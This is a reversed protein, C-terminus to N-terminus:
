KNEKLTQVFELPAINDWGTTCFDNADKFPHTDTEVIKKFTGIYYSDKEYWFVCLENVTPEWKTVNINQRVM